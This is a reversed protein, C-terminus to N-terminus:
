GSYRCHHGNLHCLLDVSFITVAQLVILLQWVLIIKTSLVDYPNLRLLQKRSVFFLLCFVCLGTALPVLTPHSFHALSNAAESHIAM